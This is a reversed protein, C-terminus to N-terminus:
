NGGEIRVTGLMAEFLERWSEFRQNAGAADGKPAGTYCRLSVFRDGIAGELCTTRRYTPDTPLDGHWETRYLNHGSVEKPENLVMVADPQILPLNRILKAASEGDVLVFEVRTGLEKSPPGLSISLTAGPAPTPNIEWDAPYRFRFLLGRSEATFEKTVPVLQPPAPSGRKRYVDVTVWAAALFILVVVIRKLKIAYRSFLELKEVTDM